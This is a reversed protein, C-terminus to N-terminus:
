VVKSRKWAEQMIYEPSPQEGNHAAAYEKIIDARVSKADQPQPSSPTISTGRPDTRSIATQGDIRTQKEQQRNLAGAKARRMVDAAIKGIIRNISTLQIKSLETEAQKATTEDKSRQLLNELRNYEAQFHGAWPESGATWSGDPNRRGIAKDVEEGVVRMASDQEFESLGSSAFRQKLQTTISRDVSTEVRDIAQRIQATRADSEQRRAADERAKLEQKEQNLRDFHPKLEAPVEGSATASAPLGEEKLADIAFQLRENGSKVASARLADLLPTIQEPLKGTEPISKNAWYSLYNGNVKNLINGLAPHMKYQGNADMLPKGDPGREMAEQAWFDLFDGVKEPNEAGYFRNDFQRLLASSTSLAKATEVDPVISIVARNKEDNLLAEFVKAKLEPVADLATKAALNKALFEEFQQPSAAVGDDDLNFKFEEGEAPATVAAPEETPDAAPDKVAPDTVAPTPAAGEVPEAKVKDWAAGLTTELSPGSGLPSTDPQNSVSPTPAPTPTSVAPTAPASVPAAAAPAPASAPPPAISTAM